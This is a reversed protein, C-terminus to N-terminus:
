MENIIVYDRTSTNGSILITDIPASYSFASSFPDQAHAFLPCLILLFLPRLVNRLDPLGTLRM